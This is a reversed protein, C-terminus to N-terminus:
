RFPYFNLINQNSTAVDGKRVVWSTPSTNGGAYKGSMSINFIQIGNISLNEGALDVHVTALTFIGAAPATFTTANVAVGASYDPIQEPAPNNLSSNYM